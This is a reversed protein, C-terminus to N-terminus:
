AFLSWKLTWRLRDCVCRRLVAMRRRGPCSICRPCPPGYGTWKGMRRRCPSGQTEVGCRVASLSDLAIQYQVAVGHERMEAAGTRAVAVELQATLLVITAGKEAMIGVKGAAVEASNHVVDNSLHLTRVERESAMCSMQAYARAKVQMFAERELIRFNERLREYYEFSPGPAM